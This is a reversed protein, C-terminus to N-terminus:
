RAWLTRSVRQTERALPIEAADVYRVLGNVDSHRSVELIRLLPVGSHLLFTLAGRRISHGSLGRGLTKMAGDMLQEETAQTRFLEALPKETRGSLGVLRQM